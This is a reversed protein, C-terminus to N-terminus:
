QAGSQKSVLTSTKQKKKKERSMFNRCILSIHDDEAEAEEEQESDGGGGEQARETRGSRNRVSEALLTEVPHMEQSVVPRWLVIAILAKM